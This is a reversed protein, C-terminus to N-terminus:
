CIQTGVRKLGVWRSETANSQFQSYFNVAMCLDPRTSVMVYMLCGVLERYPKIDIICPGILDRPPKVELPTSIPICENM